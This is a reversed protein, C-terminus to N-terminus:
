TSLEIDIEVVLGTADPEGAVAPITELVLAVGQTQAVRTALRLAATKQAGLASIPTGEHYGALGPRGSWGDAM